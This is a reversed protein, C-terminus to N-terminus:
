MLHSCKFTIIKLTLEQFQKVYIIYSLLQVILLSCLSVESYSLEPIHKGQLEIMLVGYKEKLLSFIYQLKDDIGPLCDPLAWTVSISGLKIKKCPLAYEEVCFQYALEIRFRDLEELTHDCWNEGMLTNLESVNSPCIQAGRDTIVFGSLKTKMRFERLKETYKEMLQKIEYSGLKRVIENLLGCNLFNWRPSLISFIERVSEANEIAAHNEQLFKIHQHKLSVPLQTICLKVMSLSVNLELDSSPRAYM